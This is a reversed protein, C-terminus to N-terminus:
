EVKFLVSKLESLEDPDIYLELSYTKKDETETSIIKGDYKKPYVLFWLIFLTEIIVILLLIYFM